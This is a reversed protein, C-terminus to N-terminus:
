AARARRLWADPWHTIDRRLESENFPWAPQELVFEPHRGAFEVAAASPNDWEWSPKGGPVDALAKMIGDTAVIYSGHTVMDHYAELEAAVHGKSHDADLIVMVTDDPRIQRRVAEVVDGATSSGEILTIHEFLPHAEIAARNHPRIEIDVGIVRGDAKGAAKFLSAYYILSGGHAVGTEIIVDPQVRHIVEQTRLMDQPLQIIPVGLWSFTYSYRQSWSVSVWVDSVLEFAERSYLDLVRCANGDDVTLSEADSDITVKM